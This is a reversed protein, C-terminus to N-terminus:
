AFGNPAYRVANADSEVQLSPTGDGFDWIEGGEQDRFTRVKFIVPDGPGIGFTPAYTAHITPPPHGPRSRDIVQVAMFDYDVRGAADTIKLIENDNRPKIPTDVERGALVDNGSCAVIGDAAAVVDVLGESGSIDLGYHYYIEKKAPLDGGDVYVPENAVQTYAAFWRQRAPYVFGGPDIWPSGAPWVRLRADKLM